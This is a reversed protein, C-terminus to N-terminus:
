PAPSPASVGTAPLRASMEPDALPYTGAAIIRDEGAMVVEVPSQGLKLTAMQRLAPAGLGGYVAVVQGDRWPGLLTQMTGHSPKDYVVGKLSFRDNKLPIPLEPLKETWANLGPRGVLLVLPAGGLDEATAVSDSMSAVKTGAGQYQVALAGALGEAAQREELDQGQTGIVILVSDSKTTALTPPRRRNALIQYDPDLRATTPAASVVVAFPQNERMLSIQFREERDGTIVVLPVKLRYISGTQVVTGSLRFGTGLPEVKVGQLALQPSGARDVWQDFWWGLSENSAKEALKRLDAVRVSKDAYTVFLGKMMSWYPKDGLSRYLDHLAMAGKQYVLGFWPVPGITAQADRIAVDQPQNHFRMYDLTMSQRLTPADSDPQAMVYQYALYTTLGESLFGIEGETGRALLRDTWSHLIEHAMFTSRSQKNLLVRSGLSVVGEGGYGGAVDTEAITLTGYPYSGLRQ